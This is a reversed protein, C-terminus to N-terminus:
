IHGCYECRKIKGSLIGRIDKLNRIGDESCDECIHEQDAKRLCVPCNSYGYKCGHLVCCHSTHVGINIKIPM